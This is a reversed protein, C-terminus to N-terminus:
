ILKRGRPGSPIYARVLRQCLYCDYVLNYGYIAWWQGEMKAVPQAAATTTPHPPTCVHPYPLHTSHNTRSPPIM